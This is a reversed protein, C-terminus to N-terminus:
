APVNSQDVFSFTCDPMCGHLEQMLKSLKQQDKCRLFYTLQLVHDRRDLRRMDVFDAYNALIQNVSEFTRSTEQEPAQINVYFNQKRTRFTILKTGVLVALLICVAVITPMQQDAGLGIGIAIAIFLYILEEPDKIAARFRVISLAGVLGLSLALSAKVVAIILITTLCLVPLLKAFKTRNALAEGFRHYYWAVGASLIAGLALNVVLVSLSLPEFTILQDM